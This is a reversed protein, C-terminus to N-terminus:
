GDSGPSNVDDSDAWVPDDGDVEFAELDPHACIAEVLARPGGVMTSDLDIESAVCWSRDAPWLLNPSHGWFGREGERCWPLVAGLPGRFLLHDRGPLALRPAALVDRPFGPPLETRTVGEPGVTIRVAAGGGHIWGYGEWLAVVVGADTGGDTHAALVDLLVPLQWPDVRGIPAVWDDPQTWPDALRLLRWLQARPHLTTGHAAAAEAWRAPAPASPSSRPEVACATGATSETGATCATSEDVARRELRHLVRAYAAYGGPVLGTVTTDVRTVDSTLRARIWGGVSPDPEHTLAAAM